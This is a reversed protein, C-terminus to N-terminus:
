IRIIIFLFVVGVFSTTLDVVFAVDLDETLFSVSFTVEDLLFSSNLM